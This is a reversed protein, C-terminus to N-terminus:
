EEVKRFHVIKQGAKNIQMLVYGRYPGHSMGRLRCGVGYPAVYIAAVIYRQGKRPIDEPMGAPDQSGDRLAEVTDGVEIFTPATM